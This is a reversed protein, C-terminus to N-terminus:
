SILPSVESILPSWFDFSLKIVKLVKVQRGINAKSRLFDVCTQDVEAGHTTCAQVHPFLFLFKRCLTLAHEKLVLVVCHYVTSGQRVVM